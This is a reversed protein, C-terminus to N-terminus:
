INTFNTISINTVNYIQYFDYLQQLSDYVSPRAVEFLQSIGIFSLEFPWICNWISQVKLTQLTATTEYGDPHGLLRGDMASM